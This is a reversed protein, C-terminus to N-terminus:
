YQSIKSYLHSVSNYLQNYIEYVRNYIEYNKSDPQYEFLVERKEEILSKRAGIAYSALLMAGKSAAEQVKEVVVAKGLIDAKIKSWVRSKAGGGMSVISEAKLGM